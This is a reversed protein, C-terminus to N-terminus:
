TALRADLDGASLRKRALKSVRQALAKADGELVLLNIDTFTQEVWEPDLADRQARVIKQAPTPQPREYLNFLEEHLKEGPRAGVIEIAIDREPELGSLRIMTEALDVIGVPDGMELVFLDAAGATARESLSGARIILQVAEPITMFYREM